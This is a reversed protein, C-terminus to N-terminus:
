PLWYRRPRTCLGFYFYFVMDVANFSEDAAAICVIRAKDDGIVDRRVSGHAPRIRLMPRTGRAM